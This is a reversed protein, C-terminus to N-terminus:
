HSLIYRLIDDHTFANSFVAGNLTENFRHRKGKVDSVRGGAESVIISSPAIDHLTDGPFISFTSKGEGVKCAQYIASYYGMPAGLTKELNRVDISAGTWHSYDYPIDSAFGYRNVNIKAGNLYSGLGNAATYMEETTPNYFVGTEIIGSSIKALGFGYSMNITKESEVYEGTGDLPDVIWKQEACAQGYSREEGVVSHGPFCKAVADIVLDNIAFDIGTVLTGNPKRTATFIGQRASLMIEGAQLALSQSFELYEASAAM